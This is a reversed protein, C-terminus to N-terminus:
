EKPKRSKTKSASEAQSMVSEAAEVVVRRCFEAMTEDCEAAARRMQKHEDEMLFLRVAKRADKYPM